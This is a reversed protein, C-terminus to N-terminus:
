NLTRYECGADLAAADLAAVFGRIREDEASRAARLGALDDFLVLDLARPQEGSGQLRHMWIRDAVLLHNLTGHVSKFYVGVDQRYLADDLAAAADYLRRNAWRNYSAMMLFHGQMSGM